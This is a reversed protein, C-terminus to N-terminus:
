RPSPPGAAAHATPEAGGTAAGLRAAARAAAAISTFYAWTDYLGFRARLTAGSVRTRARAHRRRRGLVIRPSAGRRSSARHRPVHGQVLGRSSRAPRPQLTMQIPGWRHKRRSPTTPITSPAAAVAAARTGLPTNEVNETRGGSTSFFYTVVPTGQYTVVQGRTEAVAADTSPTEARVGGYVQSRTDPYQDFGDGGKRHHDRLHPGRRGAGQAGRAAM